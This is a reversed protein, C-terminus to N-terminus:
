RDAIDITRRIADPYDAFLRAIEEPPKLHREANPELRFGAEEITCGERICTIVDQLPQRDPHHYLVNGTAVMPADVHDCLSAIQQLREADDQQYRITASISLRDRDFTRKLGQILHIFHDDLVPPPIVVALLGEYYELLDHLTLQCEGKAARRKGLTLLRCLRGYAARSTPYVAVELTGPESAAPDVTLQLRAGVILQIGADRAAAHARVIGALTNVDTLAIARHGIAAAQEVLEEPHSGGHLFTFNSTVLLEAYAPDTASPQVRGNGHQRASGFKPESQELL